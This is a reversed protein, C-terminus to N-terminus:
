INISQPIQSPKLTEYAFPRNLNRENINKEINILASQFSKVYKNINAETFTSGYDGFRTYYISGLTALTTYHLLAVDLPPLYSLWSNEDHDLGQPEPAYGSGPHAPLFSMDSKQPFNVAAHQPGATFVSMTLIEVLEERGSIIGKGSKTFNLIEGHKPKEIDDAWAQLLVDNKVAEDDLYYVNVFNKIWDNVANWILLADDRYPYVPLVKSDDIKQKSLRVPLFNDRFSFIKRQESILATTTIHDAGLIRDVAGGKAILVTAALYNIMLTGETHNSLLKYVPHEEPLQRRTSLAISELILHTFTLHSLLEHHETDAVRVIDKAIQWSYGDSPTYIIRNTPDQNCQIAFPRFLGGEHPVVFAAIPSYTYKKLNKENNDEHIGGKLNKLVAYDLVYIRGDKIANSLSDDIVTQLHKDEIPFNDPVKTLRKIVSSNPGAVFQYAFTEDTSFREAINPLKVTQFIKKYDELTKENEFDSLGKNTLTGIEPNLVYKILSLKDDSFITEYALKVPSKKTKRDELDIHNLNKQAFFTNVQIPIQTVLLKVVWAFGPLDTLSFKKAVPFGYTDTDYEYKKQKEALENHTYNPVVRLKVNKLKNLRYPNNGAFKCINYKRVTINNCSYSKDM